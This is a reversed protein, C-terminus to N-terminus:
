VNPISRLYGIGSCRWRPSYSRGVMSGDHTASGWIRASKLGRSFDQHVKTALGEVTSGEKLVFPSDLDAPKRPPKSYVRIIRLGEFLVQKLREFNRGTTVSIPLLAWDAQTLERCIDFDEDCSEDDCKNVIVLVPIFFLREQDDFRDKLQSPAIHHDELLSLVDDLQGTPDAQLDLVLLIFDASRILEM